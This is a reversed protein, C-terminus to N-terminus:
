AALRRDLLDLLAAVERPTLFVREASGGLVLHACGHSSPVVSEVWEVRGAKGGWFARSVHWPAVRPRRIGEPLGELLWPDLWFTRGDRTALVWVGCNTETHIAALAM